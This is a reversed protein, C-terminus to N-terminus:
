KVGFQFQIHTGDNLYVRYVYTVGPTLNKLSINFIWQQDSASWRFAADPTTSDAALENPFPEITGNYTGYLVFSSVVAVPPGISVGDAGCVRFKAPVTSSGKRAFVSNGTFNIPQLMQRGPQGNCTTGSAAYQVTYTAVVPPTANGAVDTGGICQATFTGVGPPVGGTLTLTAPSAVGSLGDSTGCNAVPVSGFVYVGGNAVGLVNVSPSTKDIKVNIITANSANGAKDSCTGVVNTGATGTEATHASAPTCSDIGSLGIDGNHTFSVTVDTKNWGAGNAPLNKAGTPANPKSKDINIGSVTASVGANGAKDVCAGSNTVSQNV